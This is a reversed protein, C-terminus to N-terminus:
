RAVGDELRGVAEEIERAKARIQQLAEARVGEDLDLDGCAAALAATRLFVSLKMGRKEAALSVQTMEQRSMRLSYVVGFNPDVRAKVPVLGELEQETDKYEEAERILDEYSQM